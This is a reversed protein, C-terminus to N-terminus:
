VSCEMHIPLVDAYAHIMHSATFFTSFGFNLTSVCLVVILICIPQLTYGLTIVLM